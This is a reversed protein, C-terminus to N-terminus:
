LLILLCLPFFVLCYGVLRGVTTGRPWSQLSCCLAAAYRRCLLFPLALARDASLTAYRHQQQQQKFFHTTPPRQEIPWALRNIVRLWSLTSKSNRESFSCFYLQICKHSLSHASFTHISFRVSFCGLLLSVLFLWGVVERKATRRPGARDRHTEGGISGAKSTATSINHKTPKEIALREGYKTNFADRRWRWHLKPNRNGLYNRTTTENAPACKGPDAHYPYPYVNGRGSSIRAALLVGM